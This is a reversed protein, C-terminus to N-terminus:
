EEWPPAAKPQEWPDKAPHSKRGSKKRGPDIHESTGRRKHKIVAELVDGLLDVALEVIDDLM